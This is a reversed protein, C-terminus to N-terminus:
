RTSRRSKAVVRAVADEVASVIFSSRSICELRCALDISERLPRPARFSLMSARRELTRAARTSFSRGRLDSTRPLVKGSSLPSTRAPPSRSAMDTRMCETTRPKRYSPATPRGPFFWIVPYGKRAGPPARPLASPRRRPCRAMTMGPRRSYHERAARDGGRRADTASTCRSWAPWRPLRARAHSGRPRSAGQRAPHSLIRRRLM